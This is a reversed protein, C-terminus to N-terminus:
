ESSELDTSLQKLVDIEVSVGFSGFVVENDVEFCGPSLSIFIVNLEVVRGSIVGGDAKVWIVLVVAVVAPSLFHPPNLSSISAKLLKPRLILLLL